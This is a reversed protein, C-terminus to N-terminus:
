LEKKFNIMEMVALYVEGPTIANMCRFDIPCQRLFCPSCETLHHIIRNKPGIPGTLVPDTSGFLAVTPTGLASALHMVGSDNSLVTSAKQLITSLEALTTKGALNSAKIGASTIIKENRDYDGELGTFIFHFSDDVAIQRCTEAFNKAPWRKAEGYEAGPSIVIWPRTPLQFGKLDASFNLEPFIVREESGLRRTIGIYDYMQHQDNGHRFSDPVIESLLWKRWQGSYGTRMPIEAFFAPLASSPSNPFTIAADFHHSILRQSTKNSSEGPCISIVEDCDSFGEWLGALKSRTLITIHADPRGRKLLSVAPMSMVADGLWNPVRVLMKFPKLKYGTPIFTGRKYKELLFNPEPTKWRNHVWFYDEPSLSIIKELTQNALFAIEDPDRTVGNEETQVPEHAEVIWQGISTQRCSIPVVPAGTKKALLGALNTTSALRGFFPTWIGVNGSHQDSMVSLAENDRLKKLGETWASKKDIMNAGRETRMQQLTQDILPNKLKQYIGSFKIEPLFKHVRAYIEWNGIHCTLLIIGKGKKHCELLIEKGRPEMRKLIKETPMQALKLYSIFNSGTRQFSELAVTHIKKEDWQDGYAIRLNRLAISRHRFDLHYAFWGLLRGLRLLFGVPLLQCYFLMLCFFSFSIYKMM